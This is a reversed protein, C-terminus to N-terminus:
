GLDRERDRVGIRKRLGSERTGEKEGREDSWEELEVRDGSALRGGAGTGEARDGSSEGEEVKEGSQGDEGRDGNRWWFRHQNSQQHSRNKAADGILRGIDTFAVYSPTTRNGQDNAIIEIRDHQWVGVCSYPKGLDISIAPAKGKAAM